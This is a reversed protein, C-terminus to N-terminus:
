APPVLRTSGREILRPQYHIHRAQVVSSAKDLRQLLSEVATRGIADTPQAVTTIGPGVLACWDLEDIGILGVEGLPVALSKLARTVALTVNGNACLVAKGGGQNSADLFTKLSEILPGQQEDLRLCLAQGHWEDLLLRYRFRELRAQRTSTQAPPESIYLVQRYGQQQLHDMATDIAANNDIGVLDADFDSLVRDLLVLPIGQRSLTQLEQSLQGTSNILLGEVRYAALLALHERELQPDNDTNCVMLSFGNDRCAQEAGHLVEVSFRNRIDAVLMGLLKSSGGKLGRAIQNPHYDLREAAAAIRSQMSRSLRKRETGFYRSVSTKSVGAVEAVELITARQRPSSDVSM